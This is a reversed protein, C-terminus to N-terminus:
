RIFNFISLQSVNAISTLLAELTTQQASLNMSLEAIDADEMGSLMIKAEMNYSDIEAKRTELRNLRAGIDALIKNSQDIGTEISDIASRIGSTDNTELATKFDSVIQYIDVGGSIGTGKFIKGGTLGYTFTTDPGVKLSTENADGSYTGSSDFPTTTYLYGSFLYRDGIKTNGITVLEDYLDSVEYSASLRSEANETDSAESEAIEKLRSLIGNVDSISTESNALYNQASDINRMYQENESITKRYLLIGSIALPDDSPKNVKKGSSLQEYTDLLREDSKSVDKSLSNFLMSNTVRM